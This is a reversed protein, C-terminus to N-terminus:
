LISRLLQELDKFSLDKPNNGMRESCIAKQAISELDEKRLGLQSLKTPVELSKYFNNLFNVGEDVNDVGLIRLIDDIKASPYNYKIMASLTIACAIGHPVKFCATLPYSIAHCSSTKAQDIALGALLSALAMNRRPEPNTPQHFAKQLNEIILKISQLAFLDSIPQSNRTWYAEVAHTLADLGTSATVDRPMSYSLVPDVIAVKPYMFRHSLSYKENNVFNWVTAYHTVESGTGATTPICVFPIGKESLSKEKKLYDGLPYPHKAMIASVKGTDITSGGGLSIVLSVKYSKVHEIAEELEPISPNPFVRDYIIVEKRGIQELLSDLFGHQRMSKKGTFIFICGDGEWPEIYRAINRFCNDGFIIETPQFHTFTM